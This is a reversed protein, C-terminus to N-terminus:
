VTKEKLNFYALPLLFLSGSMGILYCMLQTNHLSEKIKYDPFEIYFFDNNPNNYLLHSFLIINMFFFGILLGFSLITKIFAYKKFYTAGALLFCFLSFISFLVAYRDLPIDIWKFFELPLYDGMIMPPKDWRILNKIKLSIKFSYWFIPTFLTIFVTIKLIFETVFKEFASVPLMLFHHLSKKNKLFGFYQSSVIISCIVFTLIFIETYKNLSIINRNNVLSIPLILITSLIGIILFLNSKQNLRLDYKLYNFFRKPNFHKEINM